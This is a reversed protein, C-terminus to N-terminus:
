PLPQSVGQSGSIGHLTKSTRFELPTPPKSSGVRGGFHPLSGEAWPPSEQADYGRIAPTPDDGDCHTTLVPTLSLSQLLHIHQTSGFGPLM